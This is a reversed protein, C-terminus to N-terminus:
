KLFFFRVGAAIRLRNFSVERDTFPAVFSASNSGPEYRVSADLALRQAFFYSFGGGARWTESKSDEESLSNESVYSRREHDRGIGATLYPLLRGRQLVYYRADLHLSAAFSESDGLRFSPGIQKQNATYALDTGVEVLLGDFLFYGVSPAFRLILDSDVDGGREMRGYAVSGLSGTTTFSGAGLRVATGAGTLQGTLVNLGLDLTTYNLGWSNSNYNLNVHSAIHIEGYM